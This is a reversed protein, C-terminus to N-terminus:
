EDSEKDGWLQLYEFNIKHNLFNFDILYDSSLSLLISNSFLKIPYKM